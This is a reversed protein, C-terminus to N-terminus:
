VPFFYTLVPVLLCGMMYHKPLEWGQVLVGFFSCVLLIWLGLWGDMFFSLACLAAIIGVTLKRVDVIQLLKYFVRVLFLVVFCSLGAAVLMVSLLLLLTALDMGIMQQLAVISGNRAKELAYFTLLSVFMSVTNIGGVLILFGEDGVKKLFGQALIAVQSSGIGPLFAAVSGAVASVFCIVLSLRHTAQSDRQTHCVMGEGLSCWLLSVGFFGSLMPFLPQTIQEIHFVSWGILGALLFVCLCAVMRQERYLLFLLVTVLIWFTYPAVLPYATKFVFFMPVALACAWLMSGLSGILTYLVAERGRGELLLRHGPLASLVMGPDPAGLFVSPIADVLTHTISMSILVVCLILIPFPFIFVVGVMLVALTNTHLGPTLGTFTGAAVGLLIALLLELIM